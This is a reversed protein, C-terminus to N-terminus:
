SYLQQFCEHEPNQISLLKSSMQTFILTFSKQDYLLFINLKTFFVALNGEVTAATNQMGM